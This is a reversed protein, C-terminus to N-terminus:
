LEGKSKREIRQQKQEEANFIKTVPNQWNSIAM